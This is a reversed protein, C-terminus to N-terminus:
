QFLHKDLNFFANIHEAVEEAKECHPIHGAKRITIFKSEPLIERLLGSTKYPITKDKDGWILLIDKQKDQLNHYATKMDESLVNKLTSLVSHTFGKIEEKTELSEMMKKQYYSINKYDHFDYYSLHKFFPKSFKSLFNETMKSGLLTTYIQNIKLHFGLPDILIVKDLNQKHISAYSTAIWGGLSMGAYSFNKYKKIKKIDELLYDLQSHYLATNYITKPKDSKGRGWLDYILYDYDYLELYKLLRDWVFIPSSLGHILLLLKKGGRKFHVYHTHYKRM